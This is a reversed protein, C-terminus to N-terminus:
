HPLYTASRSQRTPVVRTRERVLSQILLEAQQLQKRLALVEARLRAMADLGKICLDDPASDTQPSALSESLAQQLHWQKLLPAISSYSGGGLEARVALNTPKHGRAALQTAAEFVAAPTVTRPKTSM